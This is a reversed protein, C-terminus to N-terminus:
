VKRLYTFQTKDVLIEFKQKFDERKPFVQKAFHHYKLEYYIKSDFSYTKMDNIDTPLSDFLTMAEKKKEMNFLTIAKNLKYLFLHALFTPNEDGFLKLKKESIEDGFCLDANEYDKLINLINTVYIVFILRDRESIEPSNILSITQLLTKGAERNTSELPFASAHISKAVTYRAETFPQFKPNDQRMKLTCKEINRMLFDAEERSLKESLFKGFYIFAYAFVKIDAKKTTKALRMLADQYHQRAINEYSPHWALVYELAEENEAFRKMFEKLNHPDSIIREAFYYNANQFRTEDASTGQGKVSGYYIDLLEFDLNNKKSGHNDFFDQLNKYGLRNAILNLTSIRLETNGKMKGLFRRLSNKSIGINEALSELGKTTSINSFYIEEFEKRLKDIM